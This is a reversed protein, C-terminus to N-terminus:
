YLTVHMTGMPCVLSIVCRDYSEQTIQSVFFPPFHALSFITRDHYSVFKNMYPVYVSIYRLITAIPCVLTIVCEEHPEFNEGGVLRCYENSKFDGLRVIINNPYFAAAISAIGESLKRVFFDRPSDDNAAREEIIAKDKESILDLNLVAKPHIGIHNAVVFEQRCLGVGKVPLSACALASDPDGLILKIETDTAPLDDLSVETREIEADGEYVYGSSGKSCDITYSTGTKLKETADKTGVLCPVGLERSVIAAHCTRGGRNTVVASAIRIAPVWDPDTMDAVLIEGPQMTAIEDVSDIVRVKGHSADSGIATGELVAPGHHSVQTHKLNDAAQRSRVTEPRAQVIYLKGTRGDKAWEIDMPCSHHHLKSYHKEIKVCWEALIKADEDSFCRKTKDSEKTEVTKVRQSSGDKTYVIQTQKRGISRKIIPDEAKGILPKFVQVEDPDVKGGVVSEGLGYSGTLVVVDRFGTDPDLTFAVGSSALDSRVMMQVTVAGKVQM